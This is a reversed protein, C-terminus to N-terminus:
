RAPKSQRTAWCYRSWYTYCFAIWDSSCSCQNGTSVRSFLATRSSDRHKWPYDSSCRSYAKESGAESNQSFSHFSLSLSWCHTPSNLGGNKRGEGNFHVYSSLLRGFCLVTVLAIEIHYPTRITYLGLRKPHALWEGVVLSTVYSPFLSFEKEDFLDWCARLLTSIIERYQAVLWPIQFISYLLSILMCFPTFM